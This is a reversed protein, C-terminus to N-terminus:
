LDIVERTTAPPPVQHLAWLSLDCWIDLANRGGSPYLPMQPVVTPDDATGDHGDEGVSYVLPRDQGDPRGHPIIAYRLAAGDSAFPDRPVQPLYEPVLAELNAPWAGAHDSRYFQVALAVAAMRRETRNRFDNLVFRDMSPILMSSVVHPLRASRAPGGRRGGPLMSVPWIPTATQAARIRAAPVRLARSAELWSPQTAARAYENMTQTMMLADLDFMPRLAWANSTAMNITDVDAVREGGIPRLLDRQNRDSADSLLEDILARVQARSAPRATLKSTVTSSAPATATAGTAHEQQDSAIRLGPAIVMLRNLALSECGIAVMRSIMLPQADSSRAVFRVDRVFELAAFDDGHANAYLAADGHQNSLSRLGSLMPLTLNLMGPGFNLKWDIVPCTLRARRVLAMDAANRELARAAVRDWKASFPPHDPYEMNTESPSDYGNRAHGAIAQKLLPVANPGADPDFQPNLDEPRVPEGRAILADNEIRLRRSAERAWYTRLGLLALVLLLGGVILRKM